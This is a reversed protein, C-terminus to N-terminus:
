TLEWINWVFVGMGRDWEYNSDLDFQSIVKRVAANVVSDRYKFEHYGTDIKFGKQMKAVAFAYGYSGGRRGSKGAILNVDGERDGNTFMIGKPELIARLSAAIQPGKKRTIDNATYNVSVLGMTKGEKLQNLQELEEFLEKM